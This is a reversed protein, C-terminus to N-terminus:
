DNSLRDITQRFLDLLLRDQEQLTMGSNDLRVAGPARRLPSDARTTDIRDRERVNSLVEGYAAEVGKARLETHRRRAREEAPADCFVKLEAGPFVVTGIDRGDMVIGRESGMRQQQAVLHRRVAPIAAVPSVLASVELSRIEAEVDHGNLLTHQSGDPQPAFDVSIRDLSGALAEADVGSPGAMGHRMAWLTVARYMAGTDVYRYGVAAALHRAMTSKGSSSYGDIAVIIKRSTEPHTTM